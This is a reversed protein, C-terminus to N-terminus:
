RGALILVGSFILDGFVLTVVLGVLIFVLMPLGPTVWVKGEYGLESISENFKAVMEDRDAEASFFFKFVRRMNGNADQEVEEMPYLYFTSRLRSFEAPYGTIGAFLKRLKSEHELGKFMDARQRSYTLLNTLAFWLAASVSLAFGMIAVVVPFFPHVYGLIPLFGLPPLPLTLGLCIIAKADAGGFLGFYFLGISVLTTVGISALILILLSPNVALRLITLALGIGGYALWVRDDVERTKLDFFSGLGFFFLSALIAAYEAIQPIGGILSPLGALFAFKNSILRIISVIPAKCFVLQTATKASTIILSREFRLLM